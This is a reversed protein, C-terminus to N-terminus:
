NLPFRDLCAALHLGDSESEPMVWLSVKEISFGGSYVAAYMCRLSTVCFRPRDKSTSVSPMNCLKRQKEPIRLGNAGVIARLEGAPCEHSPDLRVTDAVDQDLRRARHLIAVDFAEVALQAVLVEGLAPELGQVLGFCCYGDPSRVVVFDPRVAAQCAHWRSAEGLQM